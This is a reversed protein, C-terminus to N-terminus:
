ESNCNILAPDCSFSYTAMVESWPCNRKSISGYEMTQNEFSRMWQAAPSLCRNPSGIIDRFFYFHYLWCQRLWFSKKLPYNIEPSHIAMTKRLKKLKLTCRKLTKVAISSHIYSTRNRTKECSRTNLMKTVYVTNVSNEHVNFHHNILHEKRSTNVWTVQKSKCFIGNDLSLQPSKGDTILRPISIKQKNVHERYCYEPINWRNPICGGRFLETQFLWVLQIILLM